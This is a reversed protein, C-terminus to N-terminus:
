LRVLLFFANLIFLSRKTVYGTIRKDNIGDILIFKALKNFCYSQTCKQLNTVLLTIIIKRVIKQKVISDDYPSYHDGDTPNFKCRCHGCVRYTLLESIACPGRSARDTLIKVFQRRNLDVAPTAIYRVTCLTGSPLIQLRPDTMDVPVSDKLWSVVPEPNGTAGCIMVTGRGKEVAKLTPSEKIQPYGVPAVYGSCSRIYAQVTYLVKNVMDHYCHLVILLIYLLCIFILDNSASHRVHIIKHCQFDTLSRRKINKFLNVYLDYVLINASKVM